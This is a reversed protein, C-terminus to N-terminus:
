DTIWLAMPPPLKRCSQKDCIEIEVFLGSQRNHFKDHRSVSVDAEPSALLVMM